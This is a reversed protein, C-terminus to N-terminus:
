RKDRLQFFNDPFRDWRYREDSITKTITTTHVGGDVETLVIKLHKYNHNYNDNKTHIPRLFRM